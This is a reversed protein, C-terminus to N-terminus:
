RGSLRLRSAVLKELKSMLEVKLRRREEIMQKRTYNGAVIEGSVEAGTTRHTLTIRESRIQRARSSRPGSPPGSASSVASVGVDEPRLRFVEKM